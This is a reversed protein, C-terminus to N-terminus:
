ERWRELDRLKPYNVNDAALHVDHHVGMRNADGLICSTAVLEDDPDFVDSTAEATFSDGDAGMEIHQEIRQTNIWAGEGDFLFAETMAYYTNDGIHQWFGHGPTRVAPSVATLTQTLTGDHMYTFLAMFTRMEEGTDCDVLRGVIRWTGVLADGNMSEARVNSTSSQLMGGVLGILLLSVSAMVSNRIRAKM